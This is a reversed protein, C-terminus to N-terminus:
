PKSGIPEIWLRQPCVSDPFFFFFVSFTSPPFLKGAVKCVLRNSEAVLVNRAALDKHIIKEEQLHLMGRSIDSIFNMAM